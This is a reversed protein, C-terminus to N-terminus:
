SSTYLCFMRPTTLLSKTKLLKHVVGLLTKGKCRLCIKWGMIQIKVSPSPLPISDLSGKSINEVKFSDCFFVRGVWMVKISRILAARVCSKTQFDLFSLNVRLLAVKPAFIFLFACYWNTEFSAPIKRPMAFAYIERGPRYPVIPCLKCLTAYWM